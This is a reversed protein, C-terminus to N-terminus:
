PWRAPEFVVEMECARCDFRLGYRRGDEDVLTLPERLDRRRRDGCCLGLQHALCYRTRMVARGRMDLGSEAAAEIELVGHRRYFAAAQRNLVNGQYSLRAEHYPADNRGVEGRCVPRGAARVALLEGLADRRLANLAAIPV